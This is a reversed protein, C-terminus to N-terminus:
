VNSHSFAIRLIDVLIRDLDDAAIAAHSDQAVHVCIDSARMRLSADREVTRVIAEALFPDNLAPPRAALRLVSEAARNATRRPRITHVVLLGAVGNAVLAIGANSEVRFSFVPPMLFAMLGSAVATLSIGALRGAAATAWAVAGVVLFCAIIEIM